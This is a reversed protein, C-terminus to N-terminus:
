EKVGYREGDNRMRKLRMPVCGCCRVGVKTQLPLAVARIPNLKLSVIGESDRTSQLRM